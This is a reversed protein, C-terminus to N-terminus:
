TQVVSVLLLNRPVRRTHRLSAVCGSTCAEQERSSTLDELITPLSLKRVSQGTMSVAGCTREHANDRPLEDQPSKSPECGSHGPAQIKKVDGVILVHNCGAPTRSIEDREPFMLANLAILSCPIEADEGVVIVNSNLFM